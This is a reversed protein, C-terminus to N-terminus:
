NRLIRNNRFTQLCAKWMDWKNMDWFTLPTKWTFNEVNNEHTSSSLLNEFRCWRAKLITLLLWRLHEILFTTRLFKALNVPFCRRWLRKKLLTAPRLGSAQLKILFSVKVCTNEQSNQSIDLFVKKVSCRRAVAETDGRKINKQNRTLFIFLMRPIVINKLPFTLYWKVTLWPVTCSPYQYTM